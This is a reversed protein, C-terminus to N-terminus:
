LPCFKPKECKWACVIEECLITCNKEIPVNQCLPNCLVECVPCSDMECQDSPCYVSCATNVSSCLTTNYPSIYECLLCQPFTCIPKCIAVCVPFSCEYACEPHCGDTYVMFFLSHLLVIHMM